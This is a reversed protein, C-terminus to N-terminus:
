LNEDIVLIKILNQNFNRKSRLTAPISAQSQIRIRQFSRSFAHQRTSGPGPRVSGPGPRVSGPGPRLSGPGPKLSGPRPWVTGPVPIDPGPGAM